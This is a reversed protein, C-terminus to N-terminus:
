DIRITLIIECFKLVKEQYRKRYDKIISEAKKLKKKLPSLLFLFKDGFMKQLKSKIDNNMDKAQTLRNIVVTAIQELTQPNAYKPDFSDLAEYKAEIIDKDNKITELATEAQIAAQRATAVEERL